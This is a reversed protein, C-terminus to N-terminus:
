DVAGRLKESWVAINEPEDFWYEKILPILEYEVIHSLCNEDIDTAKLNCFYSHGICFGEGLSEDEKIKDNLSEVCDILRNFKDNHLDNQYSKFGNTDFAPKIDFFAFRRRLAYDLIALSRDATNMTGIIYLNEPVSFNENKNYLLPVQYDSGRKDKEILMFLEGFIKSINGRNIEDIIFFYPKGSNDEEAKKCFDYFVGTKVEFGDKVPRYGMIFDEYSYNQHFQITIIRENDEVGMYAYALKKAIYTKGVGPSGQLIVNKKNKILYQLSNYSKEDFYVENMFKDKTYKNSYKELNEFHAYLPIHSLDIHDLAESLEDRLKWLYTGDASNDTKHQIFLIVNWFGIRSDVKPNTDIGLKDVGIKKVIRKAISSSVSNYFYATKGYKQSLQKCSAVGGFDKIRKMLELGNIDFIDKDNLLEIWDDVSLGPTYKSGIWDECKDSENKYLWACYSMEPFTKYQYKGSDFEKKLIDCIELYEIASPLKQTKSSLINTTDKLFVNPQTIYQRNTSDLSVFYYPRIWFLGMTINWKSCSQHIVKDYIDCFNNTNEESNNESLIIASNFLKWLNNIDDKGRNDAFAFFNSKQPNLVPIGDFKSPIKSQVSFEKAIVKIFKTRKINTLKKNFIGFITFPDIDIITNDKELKPFPLENESFAKQLKNLLERRNNTYKVLIDAFESYFEIWEINM